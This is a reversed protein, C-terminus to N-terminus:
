KLFQSITESTKVDLDQSIKVLDSELQSISHYREGPNKSLSKVLVEDLRGSIEQRHSSARAPEDALIQIRVDAATKAQFPHEGTLSEYLMIGLLFNDCSQTIKLGQIQEPTAYSQSNLDDHWVKDTHRVQLLGGDVVKLDNQNVIWINNPKLNKHWLHNQHFNSLTQCLRIYLDLTKKIDQLRGAILKDNLSRGDIYERVLYLIDGDEGADYTISVDPHNIQNLKRIEEYFQKKLPTFEKFGAFAQAKYAKIIVQRDLQEDYGLYTSYFQNEKLIKSVEYKGIHHKSTPTKKQIDTPDTKKMAVSEMVDNSYMVEFISQKERLHDLHYKGLRNFEFSDQSSAIADTVLLINTESHDGNQNIRDIRDKIIVNHVKIAKRIEKLGHNHLDMLPVPSRHLTARLKIIELEEVVSNYRELKSLIDAAKKLMKRPNATIAILGDETKCLLTDEFLSLEGSILNIFTSYSLRSKESNRNFNVIEFIAITNLQSFLLEDQEILSGSEGPSDHSNESQSSLDLPAGEIKEIFDTVINFGNEIEVEVESEQSGGPQVLADDSVLFEYGDKQSNSHNPEKKPDSIFLNKLDLYLEIENIRNIPDKINRVELCTQIDAATPYFGQGNEEAKAKKELLTKCIAELYLPNQEPSAHLEKLIRIAADYNETQWVGKLFLSLIEPKERNEFLADRIEAHVGNDSTQRFIRKLAINIQDKSSPEYKLSQLFTKLAPPRTVNKKLFLTALTFCLAEDYPQNKFIKNYIRLAEDDISEARALAFAYSHLTEEDELGCDVLQKFKEAAKRNEGNQLYARGLAKLLAATERDYHFHLEM